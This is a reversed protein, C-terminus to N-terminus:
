SVLMKALKMGDEDPRFRAIIKNSELFHPDLTKMNRIEDVTTDKILLVKTGEFNTCNKYKVIVLVYKNGVQIDLIDFVEPDPDTPEPINMQYRCDSSRKFLNIGM